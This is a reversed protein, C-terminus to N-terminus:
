QSERKKWCVPYTNKLLKRSKKKRKLKRKQQNKRKKTTKLLISKYQASLSEPDFAYITTKITKTKRSLLKKVKDIAEKGTYTEQAINLIAGIIIGRHIIARFEGVENDSDKYLILHLYCSQDKCLKSLLAKVEDASVKKSILPKGRLLINSIFLVDELSKSVKDLKDTNVIHFLKM